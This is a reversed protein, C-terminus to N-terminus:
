PSQVHYLWERIGEVDRNATIAVVDFLTPFRRVLDLVLRGISGTAGLVALRRHSVQSPLSPEANFREETFM